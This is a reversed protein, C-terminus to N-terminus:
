QQLAHLSSLRAFFHFKQPIYTLYIMHNVDGNSSLIKSVCRLNNGRTLYFLLLRGIDVFMRQIERNNQIFIMSFLFGVASSPKHAQNAFIIHHLSLLLTSMERVRQFINWAATQAIPTSIFSFTTTSLRIGPLKFM